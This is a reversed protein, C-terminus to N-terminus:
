VRAVLTGSVRRVLGRMELVSVTSLVRHVPLGTSAVVSDMETPKTEIAQLVKSEVENLSLEAVHRTEAGDAHSVGEILPGLEELVDDVSTVLKAGDQILRHCGLSLRSDIPGPVAFVERGQEAAHKSTILAGSREAAEVVIVGLSLGSIVRNRQPFAGGLPPMRPPAESLLCGNTSVEEALDKHEPPYLNLLGGALVAITRGSAALAGRHAAADIGRALGSVVTLGARALGGALREAQQKGYRTAHRSGVIGIALADDPVLDGKAFLVAPPDHIEKLSRPYDAHAQTLVQIGAARATALEGEADLEEASALNAALKPGIGEARCLEDPSAALVAAPSDFRSLLNARLRPGVGSVMALRVEAVLAPDFSDSMPRPPLLPRRQGIATM